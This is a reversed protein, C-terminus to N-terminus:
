PAEEIKLILPPEPDDPAAPPEGHFVDIEALPVIGSDNFLAPPEYHKLAFDIRSFGFHEAGESSFQVQTEVSPFQEILLMLSPHNVLTWWAQGILLEVAAEALLGGGGTPMDAAQARAEVRVITTTNFAPANAGLSEKRDYAVRVIYLPYLQDWTNWDGPTYVRVGAATGAAKLAAAALNRLAFGGIPGTPMPM